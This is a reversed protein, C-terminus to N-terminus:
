EKEWNTTTVTSSASLRQEAKITATILDIEYSLEYNRSADEQWSVDIYYIHTTETTHPFWADTIDYTVGDDSTSVTGYGDVITYDDTENAERLVIVLPLNTTYELTLEYDMDVNNVHNDDYNEIILEYTYTTSDTTINYPITIIEIDEKVIESTITFTALSASDEGILTIMYRSFTVTTVIMFVILIYLMRVINKMKMNKFM